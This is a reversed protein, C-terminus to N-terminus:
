TSLTLVGHSIWRADYLRRMYRLKLIHRLIRGTRCALARVQLLDRFSPHASPDPIYPLAFFPLLEETGAMQKGKNELYDRRAALGVVRNRVCFCDIRIWTPCPDQLLTGCM